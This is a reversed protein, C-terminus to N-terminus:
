SRVAFRRGVAGAGQATDLCLIIASCLTLEFQCPLTQLWIEEANPVLLFPAVAAVRVPLPRLWADRASLLLLPPLLLVLLAVSITLYRACALPMCWRAELLSANAVVNLYGSVPALLAQLPPM